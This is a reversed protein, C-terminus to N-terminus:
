HGRGTEQKGIHESGSRLLRPGHILSVMSRADTELSLASLSEGERGPTEPPTGRFYGCRGLAPPLLWAWTAAVVGVSGM